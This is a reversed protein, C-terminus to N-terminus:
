KRGIVKLDGGLYIYGFHQYIKSFLKNKREHEIDNFVGTVLPINLKKAYDDLKKMLGYHPDTKEAYAKVLILAAKAAIKAAIASGSPGTSTMSNNADRLIM